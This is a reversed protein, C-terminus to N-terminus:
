IRYLQQGLMQMETLNTPFPELTVGVQPHVHSSVSILVLRRFRQRLRPVTTNILLTSAFRPKRAREIAAVPVPLMVLEPRQFGHHAHSVVELPAMARLHIGAIPAPLLAERHRRVQLAVQLVATLGPPPAGAPGAERPFVLKETVYGQELPM